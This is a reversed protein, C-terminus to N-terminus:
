ALRLIPPRLMMAPAGVLGIAVGARSGLLFASLDPAVSFWADARQAIQVAGYRRLACAGILALAGSVAALTLRPPLELSLRMGRRQSPEPGAARLDAVEVALVSALATMSEFSASGTKARESSILNSDVRMAM